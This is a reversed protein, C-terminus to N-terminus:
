EAPDDPPSESLAAKVLKFLVRAAKPTRTETRDRAAQRALQRLRQRDVQPHAACFADLAADGEDILRERWTEAAHLAEIDDGRGREALELADVLPQHDIGKLLRTLFKVERRRAGSPKMARAIRLREAIQPYDDLPVRALTQHHVTALRQALARTVEDQAQLAAKRTFRNDPPPPAEAEPTQDDHM